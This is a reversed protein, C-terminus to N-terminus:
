NGQYRLAYAYQAIADAQEPSLQPLRIDPHPTPTEYRHRMMLVLEYPKLIRRSEPLKELRGGLNQEAHCSRCYYDYLEDGTKM